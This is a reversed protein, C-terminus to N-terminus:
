VALGVCLNVKKDLYQLVINDGMSLGFCGKAQDLVYVTTQDLSLGIYWPNSFISINDQYIIRKVTGNKDIM